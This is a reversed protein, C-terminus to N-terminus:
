SKQEGIQFHDIVADNSVEAMGLLLRHEQAESYDRPIEPFAQDIPSQNPRCTEVSFDSLDLSDLTRFQFLNFCPSTTNTIPLVLLHCFPIDPGPGSM